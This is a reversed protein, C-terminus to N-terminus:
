SVSLSTISQGASLKIRIYVRNNTSNTTNESGFTCNVTGTGGSAVAGNACGASTDTARGPAGAGNYLVYADWWAGGLAEPSTGANDSIGPLGVWLGSYSGTISIAINSITAQSFSFDFYQDTEKGSYNIGAPLYGTTYNIQDRRMTGGVVAAEATYAAVSLDQSSDWATPSAPLSGSPTDGPAAGFGMDVRAGNGGPATIDLEEVRSTSGNMYLLDPSSFNVYSGNGNVNRGRARLSGIGHATPENLTVTVTNLATSATTNAAVPTTIGVLAYSFTQSGSLVEDEDNTQLDDIELPNTNRYTLGAINSMSLTSIDVTAGSQYHSIGSSQVLTGATNEAVVGGSMAPTSTLSDRLIYMDNTSGASDHTISYRNWGTTAAGDNIKADFSQWFGPTASPFDDNDNVQLGNTNVNDGTSSTFTLSGGASGNIFATITGDDGPGNDQITNSDVASGTGRYSSVSTGAVTVPVTGTTNDPIVGDCLLPSSGSTYGSQTLSTSPFNSPQSPVLLGLIENLGDISDTVTTASTLAVAGDSLSGDGQSPDGLPLAYGDEAGAIDMQRKTVFHDDTVADAGSVNVYAADAEDRVSFDGGSTKIKSGGKGFQVDSGIGDLGYNKINAM